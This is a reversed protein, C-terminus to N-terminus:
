RTLHAPREKWRSKRKRRMLMMMDTVGGRKKEKEEEGRNEVVNVTGVIQCDNVGVRRNADM